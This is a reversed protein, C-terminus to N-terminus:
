RNNIARLDLWEAPIKYDEVIQQPPLCNGSNRAADIIGAIGLSFMSQNVQYLNNGWYQIQPGLFCENPKHTAQTQADCNVRFLCNLYTGSTLYMYCLFGVLIIYASLLM